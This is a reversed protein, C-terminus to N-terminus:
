RSAFCGELQKICIKEDHDGNLFVIKVNIQRVELNWLVAIALVIRISNIGMVPSYTDFFNLDEWQKYWKIVLKTIDITGNAKMKKKKFILKYELLKCGLPLNM